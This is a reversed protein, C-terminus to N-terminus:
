GNSSVAPSVAAEEAAHINQQFVVFEDGGFRAVFDEPRLMERLRDAVRM